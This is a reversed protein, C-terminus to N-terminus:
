PTWWTFQERPPPLYHPYGRWVFHDPAREHEELEVRFREYVAPWDLALAALAAEDMEWVIEHLSWWENDPCDGLKMQERVAALCDTHTLWFGFEGHVNIGAGKTYREGPAIDGLCEECKHPKRATVEGEHWFTM